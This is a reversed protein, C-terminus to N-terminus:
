CRLVEGWKCVSHPSAWEGKETALLLVFNAKCSLSGSRIVMMILMQMVTATFAGRVEQQETM